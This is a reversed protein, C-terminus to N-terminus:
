SRGGSERVVLRRRQIEAKATARRPSFDLTWDKSYICCALSVQPDPTTAIVCLACDVYVGRRSCLARVAAHGEELEPTENTYKDGINKTEYGFAKHALEYVDKDLGIAHAFPGRHLEEPISARVAGMVISTLDQTLAEGRKLLAQAAWCRVNNDEDELGRQLTAGVAVNDRDRHGELARVALQRVRRSRDAMAGCLAPLVDPTGQAALLRVAVSRVSESPSTLSRALPELSIRSADAKALANEFESSGQQALLELYLEPARVAQKTIEDWRGAAVLVRAALAPDSPRWGMRELLELIRGAQKCSPLRLAAELVPVAETGVNELAKAVASSVGYTGADRALAQALAGLARPDRREGLGRVATLATDSHQSDLRAALLDTIDDGPIKALSALVEKSGKDALERKLIPLAARGAAAVLAYNDSAAAYLWGVEPSGPRWGFEKLLLAAQARVYQNADDLGAVLAPIAKTGLRKLQPTVLLPQGRLHAVLAPAAAEGWEALIKPLSEIAYGTTAGLAASLVEISSPDRIRALHEAITPLMGLDGKLDIAAHLAAVVSKGGIKELPELCSWKLGSDSLGAALAPVAAEGLAVLASMARKHSKAAVLELLPQAATAGYRSAEEWEGRAIMLRVALEDNPPQWGLVALAEATQQRVKFVPDALLRVLAPFLEELGTRGFPEEGTAEGGALKAFFQAAAERAQAGKHILCRAVGPAAQRAQWSMLLRIAEASRQEDFPLAKALAAAGSPGMSGLAELATDSLYQESRAVAATLPQAARAAPRSKFLRAAERAVWVNGDALAEMAAELLPGELPKNTNRPLAM